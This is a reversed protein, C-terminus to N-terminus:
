FILICTFYLFASFYLSSFLFPFMGVFCFLFPFIIPRSTLQCCHCCSFFSLAFIPKIFAQLTKERFKQHPSESNKTGTPGRCIFDSPPPPSPSAFFFFDSQLWFQGGLAFNAMKLMFYMKKLYKLTTLNSM